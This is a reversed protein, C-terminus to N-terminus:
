KCSTCTMTVKHQATAIGGESYPVPVSVDTEGEASGPRTIPVTLVPQDNTLSVLLAYNILGLTSGDIKTETLQLMFAQDTRKGRVTFELSTAKHSTDPHLFGPGTCTATSGAKGSGQGTVSGDIAVQAQFQMDWTEGTCTGAAGYGGTTSSHITGKWETPPPTGTPTATGAITPTAQVALIVSTPTRTLTPTAASAALIPTPTPTPQLTPNCGTLAFGFATLALTGMTWALPNRRTIIVRGM